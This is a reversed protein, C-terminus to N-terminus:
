VFRDRCPQSVTRSKRTHYELNSPARFTIKGWEVRERGVGQWQQVALDRLARAGHKQEQVVLM